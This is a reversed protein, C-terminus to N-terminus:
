DSIFWVTEDVDISWTYQGGSFSPVTWIVIATIEGNTQHVFRRLDGGPTIEISEDNNAVARTDVLERRQTQHNFLEVTQIVDGSPGGLM